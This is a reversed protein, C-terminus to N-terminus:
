TGATNLIYQKYECYDRWTKKANIKMSFERTIKKLNDMIQQLGKQSNVVVAKHRTMQM